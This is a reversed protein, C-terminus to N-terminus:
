SAVGKDATTGAFIARTPCIELCQGCLTCGKLWKIEYGGPEPFNGKIEIFSEKPNCVKKNHLACVLQCIKCGSCKTEDKGLKLVAPGKIALEAKPNKM